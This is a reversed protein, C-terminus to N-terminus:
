EDPDEPDAGEFEGLGEQLKQHLEAFADSIYKLFILGLVVHKYEAADMNSRLKDAAAWLTKEIERIDSMNIITYSRLEFTVIECPHPRLIAARKCARIQADAQPAQLHAAIHTPNRKEKTPPFFFVFYIGEFKCQGTLFSLRNIEIKKDHSPFLDSSCM